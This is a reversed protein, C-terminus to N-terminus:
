LRRLQRMRLVAGLFFFAAFGLLVGVTPLIHRADRNRVLIDLYGELAWGHPVAKALDQMAVPMVFKPVMIGGVATMIILISASISAALFVTRSIASMFLGFSVAVLSISATLLALAPLNSLELRPCGLLPLVYVGIAFMAAAQLLNIGLFPLMKGAVYEMLSIPAVMIRKYAGSAREQMINIALIQAIWFLAFITWGPVNQQVANPRAIRDAAFVEKVQLGRHRLTYDPWYTLPQETRYAPWFEAAEAEDGDAGAEERSVPPTPCAASLLGLERSLDELAATKVRTEEMYGALMGLHVFSQVASVIAHSFQRSLVPDIIVEVAEDAELALAESSRAPIRVALQYRAERLEELARARSVPEGDLERVINFHGDEEISDLLREGFDGEDENIVLLDMKEEQELSSFAGQLAVSLVLIFVTPLVFLMILGGTDRTLLKLESAVIASIRLLSELM